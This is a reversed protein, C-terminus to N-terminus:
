LVSSVRQMNNMMQRKHEIMSHAYVNLTINANSHGLIDALTRIDMGNELARTAFTHRLSHFHHHEIKLKELMQNYRWRYLKASIVSGDNRSVVYKGKSNEKIKKLRKIIWDPLPIERNSTKSKPTDTVTEWEGDENLTTYVTKNIYMLGNDFDIDDWELALLEGIRLGTYLDLIIGFYEDNHINEIYNEIKIQEEISFAFVKKKTKSPVSRVRECPNAQLLEFDVAYDFMMNLVILCMNVSVCSLEKGTRKSKKTKIQNLVMQMERRTIEEINRTGIFSEININYLSKYRVYTQVKIQDKQYCELWENFLENVTM